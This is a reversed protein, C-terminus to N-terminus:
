LEGMVAVGPYIVWTGTDADTRRGFVDVQATGVMRVVTLEFAVFLVKYGLAAGGQVGLYAGRGRVSAVDESAVQGAQGPAEIVLESSYSSLVVRPGGWVRYFDGSKGVAVPIDVNWRTFGELRIIDVVNDIPFSYSFRQIGLGVSADWGDQEQRMLRTRGALRLSSSAYRLGVEWGDAFAYAGGVHEVLAPPNLALNAGAAFVQLKEDETLTRSQAVEALTKAADITRTITGTPVSVDTGIEASLHGKPPVHAPQFSSLSTACGTALVVLAAALAGSLRGRTTPPPLPRHM